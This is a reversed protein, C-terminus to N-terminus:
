NYESAMSFRNLSISGITRIDRTLMCRGSPLLFRLYAEALAMQGCRIMCGWGADNTPGLPGGSYM